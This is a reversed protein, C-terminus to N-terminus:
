FTLPLLTYAVPVTAAVFAVVPTRAKAHFGSDM